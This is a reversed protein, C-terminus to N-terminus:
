SLSFLLLVHFVNMSEGECDKHITQYIHPCGDRVAYKKWSGVSDIQYAPSLLLAGLKEAWADVTETQVYGLMGVDKQVYSYYRDLFASMGNEGAYDSVGNSQNLRKAEFRIRPKKGRKNRQFQIDLIPRHKGTVGDKNDRVQESVSYLWAWAPAEDEEQATEIAKVLEGTISDEDSDCYDSAVMRKYGLWVLYLAHERLELLYLSRLPILDDGSIKNSM